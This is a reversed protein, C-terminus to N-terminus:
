QSVSSERSSRPFVSVRTSSTSFGNLSQPPDASVNVATPCLVEHAADAYGWKEAHQNRKRYAMIAIGTGICLPPFLLILIGHKLAQIFHASSHAASQYCLACSQAYLASPSALMALAPLGRKLHPHKEKPGRHMKMAGNGYNRVAPSQRKRM